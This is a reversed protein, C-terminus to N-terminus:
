VEKKGIVIIIIYDSYLLFSVSLVVFVLISLRNSLLLLSSVSIILLESVSLKNSILLLISLLIDSKSLL